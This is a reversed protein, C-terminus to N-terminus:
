HDTTHTPCTSPLVHAEHPFLAEGCELLNLGMEVVLLVAWGQLCVWAMVPVLPFPGEPMPGRVVVRMLVVLYSLKNIESEDCVKGFKSVIVHLTAVNGVLSM